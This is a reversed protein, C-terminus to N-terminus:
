ESFVEPELLCLAAYAELYRPTQYPKIPPHKTIYAMVAHLGEDGWEKIFPFAWCFDCQSLSVGCATAPQFFDSANLVLTFCSSLMYQNINEIM